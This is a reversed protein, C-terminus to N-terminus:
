QITVSPAPDVLLKMREEPTMASIAEHVIEFVEAAYEEATLSPNTEIFETPKGNLRHDLSQVCFCWSKSNRDLSRMGEVLQKVVEVRLDDPDFGAARMTKAVAPRGGPNGTQGKVFPM